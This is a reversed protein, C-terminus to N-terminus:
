KKFSLHKMALAKRLKPISSPGMGHLSLLESERYQSLKKLTNIGATHLARRAPSVLDEPFVDLSSKKKLEKELNEALRFKVIRTVLSVPLKKGIPFQITSKSTVYSTLEKKFHLVASPMPYLGVHKKNGAFYLLMGHYKYAPMGYSIVEDAKPATKTIIRRIELLLKQTESPFGAIYAEVNNVKKM